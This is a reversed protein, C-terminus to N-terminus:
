ESKCAAMLATGNSHCALNPDADRNLLLEVCGANGQM